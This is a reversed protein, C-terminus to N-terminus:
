NRWPGDGWVADYQNTPLPVKCAMVVNAKECGNQDLKVSVGNPPTYYVGDKTHAEAQADTHLAASLSMHPTEIWKSSISCKVTVAKESSPRWSSDLTAVIPRVVGYDLKSHDISFVSCDDVPDGSRTPDLFLYLPPLGVDEDTPQKRHLMSQATGCESHLKWTGDLPRDLYKRAADPTSISLHSWWDDAKADATVL